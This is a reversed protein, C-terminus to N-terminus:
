PASWSRPATRCSARLFAACVGVIVASKWTSYFALAEGLLFLYFASALWLMREAGYSAIILFFVTDGFLALLGLWGPQSRGRLAVVLAYALYLAM